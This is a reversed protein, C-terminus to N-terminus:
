ASIWAPKSKRRYALFGLGAFGLLMMAWTSPEPVGSVAVFSTYDAGISGQSDALTYGGAVFTSVGLEAGYGTNLGMADRVPVFYSPQNIGFVSVGFSNLDNAIVTAADLAGTANGFFTPPTSTYVANYSGNVFTVNYTTGDVVLGNIGTPDSTTGILTDARAALPAAEMVMVSLATAMLLISAISRHSPRTM